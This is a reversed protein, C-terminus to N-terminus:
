ASTSNVTNLIDTLVADLVVYPHEGRTRVEDQLALQYTAAATVADTLSDSVVIGGLAQVLAQTWRTATITLRALRRPVWSEAAQRFSLPLVAEVMGTGLTIYTATVLQDTARELAIITDESSLDLSGEPVETIDSPGLKRLADVLATVRVTYADNM